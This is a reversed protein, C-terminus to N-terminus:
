EQKQNLSRRGFLKSILRFRNTASLIEEQEKDCVRFSQDYMVIAGIGLAASRRICMSRIPRSSVRARRGRRFRRKRRCRDPVPASATPFLSRSRRVRCHRSFFVPRQSMRASCVRPRQAMLGTLDSTTGWRPRWTQKTENHRCAQLASFHALAAGHMYITAISLLQM